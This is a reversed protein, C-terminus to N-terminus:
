KGLIEVVKSIAKMMLSAPLVKGDTMVKNGEEDLILDECFEFMQQPDQEKATAFKVFKNLPQRDYCYFEISDGFEEVTEEDDILITVLKPEQALETLKM